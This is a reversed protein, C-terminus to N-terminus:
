FKSTFSTDYGNKLNFLIPSYLFNTSVNELFYLNSVKYCHDHIILHQSM